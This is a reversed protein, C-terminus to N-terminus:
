TDTGKKKGKQEGFKFHKVKIKGGHENKNMIEGM